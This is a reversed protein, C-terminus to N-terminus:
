APPSARRLAAARLIEAAAFLDRARQEPRHETMSRLLEVVDQNPDKARSLWGRSPTPPAVVAWVEEAMRGLAFIDETGLPAAANRLSPDAVEPALYSKTGMGPMEAVVGKLSAIGFDMVVPRDDKVLVNEPKLDRHVLGARHLGAVVVMIDALLPLLRYRATGDALMERFSRGEVFDEVLVIDDDAGINLYRVRVIGPVRLRADIVIERRLSELIAARDVTAEGFRYRKLAVEEGTDLDFARYVIATGGSGAAKVVLFREAARDDGADRTLKLMENAPLLGAIHKRVRDAMSPLQRTVARRLAALIVDQAEGDRGLRHLAEALGIGADIEHRPLEDAAFRASVRRLLTVAAEPDREILLTGALLGHEAWEFRSPDVLPSTALEASIAEAEGDRGLGALAWAEELRLLFRLRPPEAPVLPTARSVTALAEDPRELANLIQCRNIELRAREYASLTSGPTATVLDILRLGAEYRGSELNLRVAEAAAGDMAPRSGVAAGFAFAELLDLAAARTDSRWTNVVAAAAAIAALQAQDGRRRAAERAEGLTTMATQFLGLRNEVVARMTLYRAHSPDDPPVAIAAIDVMLEDSSRRNERIDAELAALAAQDSGGPM